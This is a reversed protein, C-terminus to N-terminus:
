KKRYEARNAQWWEELTIFDEASLASLSPDGAMQKFVHKWKSNERAMIEYQISEDTKGNNTVAIRVVLFAWDGQVKGDLVTISLEGSRLKESNSGLHAKQQELFEKNNIPFLYEHAKAMNGEKVSAWFENYAGEPTEEAMVLTSAMLITILMAAIHTRM